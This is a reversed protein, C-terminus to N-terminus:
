LLCGLELFLATSFYPSARRLTSLYIKLDFALTVPSGWVAETLIHFSSGLNRTSPGQAHRDEYREMDKGGHDPHSAHEEGIHHKALGYPQELRRHPKREPV